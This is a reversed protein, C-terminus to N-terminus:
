LHKVKPKFGYFSEYPTIGDLSSTPSRNRLYIASHIAEAWYSSSLGKFKLWSRAMGMLTQENNRDSWETM